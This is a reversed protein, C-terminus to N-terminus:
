NFIKKITDNFIKEINIRILESDGIFERKPMRRTGENLFSAYNRDTSITVSTDTINNVVISRKLNGTREMLTGIDPRKRDEWRDFVKDTFGKKSFTSVFVDKAGNGIMGFIDKQIALYTNFQNQIKNSNVGM